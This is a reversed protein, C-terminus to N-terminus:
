YEYNMFNGFSFSKEKSVVSSLLKSFQVFLIYCKVM